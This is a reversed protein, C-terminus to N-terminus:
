SHLKVISTARIDWWQTLQSVGRYGVEVMVLFGQQPTKKFFINKSTTSRKKTIVHGLSRTTIEMTNVEKPSVEM